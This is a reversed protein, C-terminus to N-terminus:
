AGEGAPVASLFLPSEPLIRGGAFHTAGIQKALLSISFSCGFILM